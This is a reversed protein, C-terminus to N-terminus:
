PEDVCVAVNVTSWCPLNVDDPVTVILPVDGTPEDNLLPLIHSPLLEFIAAAAGILPSAAIFEDPEIVTVPNCPRCIDFANGLLPCNIPQFPM